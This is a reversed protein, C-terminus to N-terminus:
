TPTPCQAPEPELAQIGSLVQWTHSSDLQQYSDQQANNRAYPLVCQSEHQLDGQQVPQLYSPGAATCVATCSATCLLYHLQQQASAGATAATCVQAAAACLHSGLLALGVAAQLLVTPHRCVCQETTM